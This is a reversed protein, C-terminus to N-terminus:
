YAPAPTTGAAKDQPKAVDAPSVPTISASPSGPGTPAATAASGKPVFQRAGVDTGTKATEVVIPHETAYSDQRIGTVQWSVKVNPKDTRIAFSNNAVEKSVVAQAFDGIVTLQYRFDRNLAAFYAPLAVTAAGSGDTTINGNYINMMDPSEVFSHSLWKKDPDLPHDIRFSGASKSLTGNVHSNGQAFIAFGDPSATTAFVGYVQGTTATANGYLGYTPAQGWVGVYGSDGRVGATRANVGHVGYQGGSGYVGNSNTDTSYGSVGTVGSGSVGTVGNALVGYQGGSAYVAGLGGSLYAGYSTSEGLVGYLDGKGSVGATAGEGRVGVNGTSSGQVGYGNPSSGLIGRGSTTTGISKGQVATGSTVIDLKEAPSTVGIGIKGDATLRMKEVVASTANAKTKFILPVGATTPGIFNSTTVGSNGGLLWPTTASAAQAPAAGAVVATAALGAAAGAFLLRRPFRSEFETADPAPPSTESRASM